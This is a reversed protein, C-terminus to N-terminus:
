GAREHGAGKQSACLLASVLAGGAMRWGLSIRQVDVWGGWREILGPGFQLALVTLFGGVLASQASRVTGRRTLLATLFVGLLGAYAYVMVGLAFQLLTEDSSAQWYVCISAFGSLLAAWAVVAARSARMYHRESRGPRRPRYFDCVTTSALANLASDLSSMAAAMLGAIMLGRLGVPLERLIFTLFVQRPDDVSAAGEGQEHHLFLLLGLGLFLAVVCLGLLNAVILSWAGRTATRCTLMRQTLDQDTGYAAMNFFTFGIVASWVTYPLAPDARFDFVALKSAGSADRAASLSAIM